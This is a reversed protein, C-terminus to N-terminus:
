QDTLDRSKDTLGYGRKNEFFIYGEDILETLISGLKGEFILDPYKQMVFRDIAPTSIWALQLEKARKQIIELVQFHTEKM